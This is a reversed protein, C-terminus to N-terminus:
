QCRYLPRRLLQPPQATVDPYEAYVILFDEYTPFKRKLYRCFAPARGPELVGVLM